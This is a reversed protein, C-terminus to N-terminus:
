LAGCLSEKDIRSRRIEFYGSHTHTDGFCDGGPNSYAGFNSINRFFFSMKISCM